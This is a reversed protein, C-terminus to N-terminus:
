VHVVLLVAVEGPDPYTAGIAHWRQEGNEGVRDLIIQCHEDDFVPSASEFSIDDHDRQNRLNKEEDWEFQM